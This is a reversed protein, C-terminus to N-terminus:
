QLYHYLYLAYVLQSAGLVVALAALAGRRRLLSGVRPDGALAVSLPVAAIKAFRALAWASYAEILAALLVLPVALCLMDIDRRRWFHWALGVVTAAIACLFAGKVLGPMSGAFLGSAVGRFPIPAGDSAILGEAANARVPWLLAEGDAVGWAWYAAFPLGALAAKWWPLGRSAVAVGTELLLFPWAMKHTFSGAAVAAVFPWWARQRLHWAAAVVCAIALADSIPFAVYTVGVLPFLAFLLLGFRRTPLDLDALLRDAYVVSVAWAVLVVSMQVVTGALLGGSLTRLAWLVAPLGPLHARDRYALVTSWNAYDLADSDVPDFRLVAFLAGVAAYTVAAIGAITRLPTRIPVDATAAVHL